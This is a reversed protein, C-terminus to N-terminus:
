CWMMVTGGVYSIKMAVSNLMVTAGEALGAFTSSVADSGDNAILVISNGAVPTYSGSVSLTAGSLNVAGNVVTQDHQTGATTGNIEVSYTAGSSLVLNDDITFVSVAGDIGLKGGSQVTTAGGFAIATLGYL